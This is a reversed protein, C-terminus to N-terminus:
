SVPLTLSLPEGSSRLQGTLNVLMRGDALRETTVASLQVRPEWQLVAMYCAVMIQLELAPTLPQDVLASLLSGYQHRMIRSGVPTRLVDSLSQRIHDGDTLTRGTSRNMGSYRITM